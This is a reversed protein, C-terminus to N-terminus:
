QCADNHILSSREDLLGLRVLKRTLEYIDRKDGEKRLGLAVICVQVQDDQVRYIIRYRQGAARLSRYGSLEKILAKGQQDPNESLATIRDRLQTRIRRDKIQQLM